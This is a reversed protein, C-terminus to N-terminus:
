CVTRRGPKLSAISSSPTSSPAPTSPIVASPQHSPIDAPPPLLAEQPRKLIASYFCDFFHKLQLIFDKFFRFCLCGQLCYGNICHFWLDGTCTQSKGTRAKRPVAPLDVTIGDDAIQSCNMNSYPCTLHAFAAIFLVRWMFYSRTISLHIETSVKGQPRLKGPRRPIIPPPPDDDDESVVMETDETTEELDDAPSGRAHVQVEQSGQRKRKNRSSSVGSTSVLAQGSTVGSSDKKPRERLRPNHVDDM